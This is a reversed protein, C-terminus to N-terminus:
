RVERGKFYLAAWITAFKIFNAVNKDQNNKSQVFSLTEEDAGSCIYESIAFLSSELEEMISLEPLIARSGVVRKLYSKAGEVSEVAVINNADQLASLFKPVSQNEMFLIEELREPVILEGRNGTKQNETIQGADVGATKNQSKVLVLRNKIFPTYQFAADDELGPLIALDICKEAISSLLEEPAQSILTIQLDPNSHRFEALLPPFLCNALFPTTGLQLKGKFDISLLAANAELAEYRKLVGVAYKLFIEGKVTVRIRSTNREFLQFGYDNELEQIHKTIAPQSISLEKAAKTFSLLRAVSEFVRLRFDAM